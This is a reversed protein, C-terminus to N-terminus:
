DIAYLGAVEAATLAKNYIRVNDVLGSLTKRTDNGSNYKGSGDEFITFPYDNASDWLPGKLTNLDFSAAKTPQVTEVADIYVHLLKASQDLVVTVMHWKDDALAAAQPVTENARWDMRNGVGGADGSVKLLWGRGTSGPGTYTTAGDTALVFGPNGGSDWNSNSFIAPDSGIGKLKVWFNFSFNQTLSPRLLAHKPLVAYAGSAFSAVKGRQPDTIFTVNTTALDGQAGDLKNGSVDSLDNDMPLWAVLASGSGSTTTFAWSTPTLFGEFAKGNNDLISGADALVYHATGFKLPTSLKVTVKKGSVAVAPTAVSFEAVKLNGATEYVSFNGTGKKVDAAFNLELKIPSGTNSAPLPNLGVLALGSAGVTKFTWTKGDPLGMYKNGLLDTVIGQDLMVTYTEDAKLDNPPNITLIHKDQSISVADSTISIRQTDLRSAITVMGEGIKIVENFTLSLNSAVAVGEVSSTPNFSIAMPNGTDITHDLKKDCSTLLTFGLMVMACCAAFPKNYMKKM